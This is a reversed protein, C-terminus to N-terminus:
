RLLRDETDLPSLDDTVVGMHLMEMRLARKMHKPSDTVGIMMPPAPNDGEGGQVSATVRDDGVFTM